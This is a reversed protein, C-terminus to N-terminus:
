SEEEAPLVIVPCQSGRIVKEATSGFLLKEFQGRIGVRGMVVCDVAFDDAKRIIELFPKGVSVMTDIQVGDINQQRYEQLAEDAQRRMRDTVQEVEGFGHDAITHIVAEDLVHLVLIVGEEHDAFRLAWQFAERSAESFDTPVLLTSFQIREAPQERNTKESM